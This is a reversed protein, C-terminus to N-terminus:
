SVHEHGHECRWSGYQNVTLAGGCEIIRYLDEPFDPEPHNSAVEILWPCTETESGTHPGHSALPADHAPLEHTTPSSNIMRSLGAPRLVSGTRDVSTRAM